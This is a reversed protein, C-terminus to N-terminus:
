KSTHYKALWMMQLDPHSAVTAVIPIRHTRARRSLELASNSRSLVLIAAIDLDDMEDYAAACLEPDGRDDRKVLEIRDGNDLHTQLGLALEVGQLGSLGVTEDPGSLPGIVGVRVVKGSPELEHDACGCLAIALCALLCSCKTYGM